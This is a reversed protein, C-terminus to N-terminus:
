KIYSVILELEGKFALNKCSFPAIFHSGKKIPMGNVTGCGDIVSLNMFSYNQEVNASEMIKIKEVTYYKCEVLKEVSLGNFECADRVVNKEEYPANIVDISKDIHLERPKGNSLRDYDYVRYTIDSNQQTELILTGGKIAHLCGPDIQFFDGRHVPVERIFDSWRGNRVMEEMEAKDKANHGIVITANEKCDLVYWCETKGLSGNENANAYNDDPHVQISLDDDADIIKILLPFRDGQMNGFLERHEDWLQSLSMGDYKGGNVICDGNQHASIAWCEGTKDSPIDYKFDTNLRNGGWIMEKFIPKLFIIESENKLLKYRLWAAMGAGHKFEGSAILNDIEAESVTECEILEMLEKETDAQSNCKAYFLHIVENTAGFSPYFEGLSIIKDAIYGTEEKVERTAAAIPEEGEDIIGAAFEYSWQKIPYRYEKLVVFGKNTEVIVCIGPKIKVFSYKADKSNIKLSDEVIEFRSVSLTKSEILTIDKENM